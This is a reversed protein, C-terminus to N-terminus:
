HTSAAQAVEPLVLGAKQAASMFGVACGLTFTQAEEMSTQAAAVASPRADGDVVREIKGMAQYKVFVSTSCRERAQMLADHVEGRASRPVDVAMVDSNGRSCVEKAQQVAAYAAYMDGGGLIEGARSVRSDCPAMANKVSTWMTELEGQTLGTPRRPPAPVAAVTARQPATRDAQDAAAKETAVRDAEAKDIAAQFGGPQSAAGMIGGGVCGALSGLIIFVGVLRKHIRLAKLPYIVNVAGFVFAASCLLVIIIAITEM